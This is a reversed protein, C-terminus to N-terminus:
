LDEGAAAFDLIPVTHLEPDAVYVGDRESAAAAAAAAAPLAMSVHGEQAVLLLMTDNM